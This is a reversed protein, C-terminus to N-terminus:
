RPSAPAAADLALNLELVNVRPEGLVGLQPPETHRPVLAEVTAIDLGRSRAVRAVQVRAAQVSIHPDLGSGSQTVLDSPVDAPAIGERAAVAAVAEDIRTRLDANTRAANSGAAAMPDYSAASPRSAFYGDGVFPQAVWRSGVVTGERTLLSGTSQAPFLLGGILATAVSYALGCGLLVVPVALLAGRWPIRTDLPAPHASVPTDM